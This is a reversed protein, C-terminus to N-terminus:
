QYFYGCAILSVGMVGSSCGKVGVSSLSGVATTAATFKGTNVFGSVRVAKTRMSVVTGSVPTEKGANGTAGDLVLAMSGNGGVLCIVLVSVTVVCDDVM